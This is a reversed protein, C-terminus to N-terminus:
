SLSRQLSSIALRDCWIYESKQCAFVINNECDKLELFENLFDYRRKWPVIDEFGKFLNKLYGTHYILVFEIYDSNIEHWSYNYM